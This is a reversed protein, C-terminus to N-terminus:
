IRLVILFYYIVMLIIYANSENFSFPTLGNYVMSINEFSQSKVSSYSILFFLFFYFRISMM